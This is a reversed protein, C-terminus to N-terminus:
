IPVERQTRDRPLDNQPQIFLAPMQERRAESGGGNTELSTPFREEFRM